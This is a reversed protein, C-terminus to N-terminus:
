TPVDEWAVGTWRRRGNWRTGDWYIAMSPDAPDPHWAPQPGAAVAAPAALVPVSGPVGPPPAGGLEPAPVAMAGGPAQAAAAQIAAARAAGARAAEEIAPLQDKEFKARTGCTTCTLRTLTPLPVLPVFFLTFRSKIRALLHPTQSGCRACVWLLVGIRQVYRRVGFILIM